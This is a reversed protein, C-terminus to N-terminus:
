TTKHYHPQTIYNHFNNNYETTSKRDRGLCYNSWLAMAIINDWSEKKLCYLNISIM